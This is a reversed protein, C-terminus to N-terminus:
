SGKQRDLERQAREQSEKDWRERIKAAVFTAQEHTLNEEAIDIPETGMLKALEHMEEILIDDSEPHLLVCYLKESPDKSDESM